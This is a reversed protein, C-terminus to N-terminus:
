TKRKVMKKFTKHKVMRKRKYTKCKVIRKRKFNKHRFM